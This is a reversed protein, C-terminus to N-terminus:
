LLTLNSGSVVGTCASFRNLNEIILKRYIGCRENEIECLNGTKTYETTQSNKHTSPDIKHEINELDM